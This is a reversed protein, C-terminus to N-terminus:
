SRELSLKCDFLCFKVWSLSQVRFRSSQQEHIWTWNWKPGLNLLLQFTNHQFLWYDQLGRTLAPPVPPMGGTLKSCRTADVRGSIVLKLEVKLIYKYPDSRSLFIYNHWGDQLIGLSPGTCPMNRSCTQCVLEIWTWRCTRSFSM